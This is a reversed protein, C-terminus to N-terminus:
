DGHQPSEWQCQADLTNYLDYASIRICHIAITAFHTATLASHTYKMSINYISFCAVSYFTDLFKVVLIMPLLFVLSLRQFNVSTTYFQMPITFNGRLLNCAIYNYVRKTFNWNWIHFRNQAHAGAYESLEFRM